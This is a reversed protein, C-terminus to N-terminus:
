TIMFTLQFVVEAILISRNLYTLCFLITSQNLDVLLDQWLKPNILLLFSNVTRQFSIYIAAQKLESLNPHLETLM